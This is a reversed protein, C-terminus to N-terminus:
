NRKEFVLRKFSCLMCVFFFLVGIIERPVLFKEGWFVWVSKQIFERVIDYGILAWLMFYYFRASEFVNVKAGHVLRQLM